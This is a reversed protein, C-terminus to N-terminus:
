VIHATHKQRVERLCIRVLISMDQRSWLAPSLIRVALLGAWHTHARM